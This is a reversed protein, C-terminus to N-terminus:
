GGNESVGRARAEPKTNEQTKTVDLFINAALVRQFVRPTHTHICVYVHIHVYVYMNIYTHIYTYILNFASASHAPLLSLGASASKTAMGFRLVM